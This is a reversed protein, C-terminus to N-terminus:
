RKASHAASSLSQVLETAAAVGGDHMADVIASGVVVADAREAIAKAQEPTRVGFGVAVPLGSASKDAAQGTNSAEKPGVKAM